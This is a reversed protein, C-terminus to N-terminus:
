TKGNRLAHTTLIGALASVVGILDELVKLVNLFESSLWVEGGDKVKIAQRVKALSEHINGIQGKLYRDAYHNPDSSGILNLNEPASFNFGGGLLLGLSGYVEFFAESSYKCLCSLRWLGLRFILFRERFSTTIERFYNSLRGALNWLFNVVLIEICFGSMRM